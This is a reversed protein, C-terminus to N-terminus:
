RILRFGLNFTQGAGQNEGFLFNTYLSELEVSPTLQYKLGAGVQGYYGSWISNGESPNVDWFPTFELPFYFTWKGSPYYNVLVKVPTYFDEFDSGFRFFLGSELYLLFKDNLSHDYFFQTWWQLDDFDVFPSTDSESGDLDSALPLLLSTQVAFSSLSAFPTAKIKPGIHSLVVRSNNDSAFKFTAFPSSDESDNRVAKFLLDAGVNLRPSIGVLFNNISTFFNSRSGQDQREGDGNFFATQTYLNNFQKFEIQGRRLLTSPTYAQLNETAAAGSASMKERAQDNLSWDYTIYTVQYDEPINMRRFQNIYQIISTGNKTFEDKYWKFLESVGVSKAEKNVNVHFSNNLTIRTREDILRSLARPTYANPVLQPCGVAACVLVFHLRPDQFKDLLKKRELDNLTMEEGGVVHKNRDFFGGVDQPSKLPYSAVVADIVLINYANIWFAKEVAPDSLQSLDIEALEKVLQDLQGSNKAIGQYDVLGASVNRSLFKDVNDFFNEPTNEAALSGTLLLIILFFPTLQRM